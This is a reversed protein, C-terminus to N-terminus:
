THLDGSLLRPLLLDRTRRLNQIQAKLIKITSQIPELHGHFKSAIAEPPLPISQTLIYDKNAHPIAAGINKSKFEEAKAELFRYLAHPSFVKPRTTRFRGLTSGVAGSFGIAVECSSAGDMVMITDRGEAIILKAPSAFEAEGGRLTDILLLSVDGPLPEKRTESPKRGKAFDV